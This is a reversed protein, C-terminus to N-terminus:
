STPPVQGSLAAQSKLYQQRQRFRSVSIGAVTGVAISYAGLSSGNQSDALTTTSEDLDDSISASAVAIPKDISDDPMVQSVSDKHDGDLAENDDTPVAPDFEPM